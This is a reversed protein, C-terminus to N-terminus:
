DNSQCSHPDVKTMLKLFKEPQHHAKSSSYAQFIAQFAKLVMIQEPKMSKMIAEVKNKWCSLLNKVMKRIDWPAFQTSLKM